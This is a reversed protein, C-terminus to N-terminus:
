LLWKVPGRLNDKVPDYGGKSFPNCRLIRLLGKFVGVIIGYQEVANLMYVSCTPTYICERGILPSLTKKYLIILARFIKKM